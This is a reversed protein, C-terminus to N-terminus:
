DRYTAFHLHALRYDDGVAVYVMTMPGRQAEDASAKDGFYWIATVVASDGFTDARVSDVWLENEAERGGSVFGFGRHHERVAEIGEVLGQKESSFYTVRADTVFLEDVEDLDYSNWMAVWRDVAASSDFSAPTASLLTLISIWYLM